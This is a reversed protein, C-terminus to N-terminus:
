SRSGAPSIALRMAETSDRRFRAQLLRAVPQGMVALPARPWSVARIRYRVHGTEDISVEFLEEGAEAHTPLTGYAYGFHAGGELNGVTYVVRCGNLSWFGLHKILVAVEAGTVVPPVPPFTEVWGLHFQRWALLAARAREFDARGQGIVTSAEDLIGRPRVQNLIGVPSYSLPLDRSELLFRDIAGRTPRRLLFM